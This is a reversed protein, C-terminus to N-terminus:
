EGKMVKLLDSFEMAVYLKSRNRKFVVAPYNEGCNESAQELASWINLREQNKCELSFPFRDRAAPSLQLDEGGAGMSRSIVDDEHLDFTNILITRVLQQLRRGKAKASQPTLAM